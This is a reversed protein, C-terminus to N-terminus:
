TTAVAQFLWAGGVIVQDAAGCGVVLRQTHEIVEHIAGQGLVDRQLQQEWLTQLVLEGELSVAGQPPQM